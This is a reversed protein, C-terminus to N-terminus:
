INWLSLFWYVERLTSFPSSIRSFDHFERFTKPRSFLKKRRARFTPSLIKPGHFHTLSSRFCFSSPFSQIGSHRWFIRLDRCLSGFHKTNHCSILRLIMSLTAFKRQNAGWALNKIARVVDAGNGHLKCNNLSSFARLLKIKRSFAFFARSKEVERSDYRKWRAKFCKLKPHARLSGWASWFSGLSSIM